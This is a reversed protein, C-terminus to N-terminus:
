RSTIQVSFTELPEVDTEWPRHYVLEITAQGEDIVEFRITQMGGAGILESEPDFEIDGVRKLILEDVPEKVEWTYGTTPNAELNIVVFQGKEVDFVDGADEAGLILEESLYTETESGNEICGSFSTAIVVLGLVLAALLIATRNWM